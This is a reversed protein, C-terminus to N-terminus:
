GEHMDIFEKVNALLKKLADEDVREIAEEVDVWERIRFSEMWYDEVKDVQMVFVQVNCIDGWKEYDYCGIPELLVRGRLGAEEFAEKAASESSTLGEEIIGKPVVWRKGKRSTVMLVEVMGERKRYPIVASQHYYYDPHERMTSVQTPLPNEDPYHLM